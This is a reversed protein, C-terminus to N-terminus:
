YNVVTKVAASRGPQVRLSAAPLSGHSIADRRRMFILATSQDVGGGNGASGQRAAPGDQSGANAGVWRGRSLIAVDIASPCRVFRTTM